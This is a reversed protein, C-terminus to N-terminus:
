LGDGAGEKQLREEAREVAASLSVRLEDECMGLGRARM